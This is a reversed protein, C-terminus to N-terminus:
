MGQLRKLKERKKDDLQKQRIAEAKSDALIMWSGLKEISPIVFQDGKSRRVQKWMGDKIAIVQIGKAEKKPQEPQPAVEPQAEVNPTEPAKPPVPMSRNNAM